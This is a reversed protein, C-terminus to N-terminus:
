QNEVLLVRFAPVERARGEDQRPIKHRLDVDDAQDEGEDEAGKDDEVCVPTQHALALGIKTEKALEEPENDDGEEKDAVGDERKIGDHQSGERPVTDLSSDAKQPASERILLLLHFPHPFSPQDGDGEIAEVEKDEDVERGSDVLKESTKAGIPPHWADAIVLSIHKVEDLSKIKNKNPHKKAYEFYDSNKDYHVVAEM